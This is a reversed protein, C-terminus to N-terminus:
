VEKLPSLFRRYQEELLQDDWVRSEEVEVLGSVSRVKDLRVVDRLDTLRGRIPRGSGDVLEDAYLEAALETQIWRKPPATM